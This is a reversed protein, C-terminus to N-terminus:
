LNQAEVKHELRREVSQLLLQSYQELLAMTKEEGEGLVSPGTAPTLGPLAELESHAMFLADMLVREMGQQELGVTGICSSVMTYLQIVKKVSNYLEAAAQRCTELTMLPEQDSQSKYTVGCTQLVDVLPHQPTHSLTKFGSSNKIPVSQSIPIPLECKTPQVQGKTHSIDGYLVGTKLFTNTSAAFDTSPTPTSRSPYESLPSSLRTSVHSKTTKATPNSPCKGHSLGSEFPNSPGPLPASLSLFSDGARSPSTSSSGPCSSTQSDSLNLHLGEKLSVSRNVKAKSSTTPSMYSRVKLRRIANPSEWLQPSPPNTLFTHKSISDNTDTLLETTFPRSSQKLLSKTISRRSNASISLESMSQAISKDVPIVARSMTPSVVNKVRCTKRRKPASHLQESICFDSRQELKTKQDSDKQMPHVTSVPPKFIACKESKKDSKCLFKSTRRATSGQALLSASISSQSKAENGSNNADSLTELQKEFFSKPEPSEPKLFPRGRVTEGDEDDTSLPEPDDLGKHTQEPSSGGSAYGMSSGRDPSHSGQCQIKEEQEQYMGPLSDTSPCLESSLVEGEPESSMAPRSWSSDACTQRKKSGKTDKLLRATSSCAQNSLQSSSVRLPAKPKSFSDFQQLELMSKVMLEFSGMRCNWRKRRRPVEPLAAVSISSGQDEELLSQPMEHDDPIQVDKIKEVDEGEESESTCTPLSLTSQLELSDTSVRRFNGLSALSRWSDTFAPSSLRRAFQDRREKIKVTLEPALRWIFICGDGSASILHRCNQTFKISTIIESHGFVAALCDGTQLDFLSLNKESCSTAVYLGSPDIQVRLLSGDEAQSGKFSKKQKGSSINFVRISRDQCGVVACKCTPDVDLDHLTSKRVIHHTRKFKVGKLTRHAARIYVSKDAGCSVMRVKGESAAFRVATISSSHDDLTQLLTYDDDVDLVHILRDRGATALLNMGTEPKSYELCLIESDHMKIQLVEEMTDLEYIRLTGNRDGSALHKGDPSVCITRIGTQSETPQEETKELCSTGTGEANLQCAGNSATYIVEQLDYSLRNRNAPNDYPETRWMRITSDASCSFFLESSALGTLPKESAGPCIQLDWVCASHYLGSYVKGVRQLDQVDWVYLSHDSYVCSLWLNVPDYTVAVSDPYRVDPNNSFLHSARSSPHHPRPLTCIFHLDSPTFVRVTGEACACFILDETVCLARATGTQLDVWKDLMRKENFECLLGSSTICFTSKSKEGHGCVVDCFNNNQLDGLLGSRGLLPVPATLKNSNCPELYWYKVHRNGATVFYSSDESFSVATVKSSVKNAAVLMNKKWAWVNVSMDHQYGISVIYKSNPSFAVCGVGYKHQQLEAVQSGDAVDWVRVAPLHGHEGTVLYKGDSSFALATITKRSTNIIHQQSNKTPNLLVIVCGAPYAVTGSNSDCALGSNGWTTIGLVKELTLVKEKVVPVSIQEDKELESLTDNKVDDENVASSPTLSEKNSPKSVLTKEVHNSEKAAHCKNQSQQESNDGKLLETTNSVETSNSQSTKTETNLKVTDTKKFSQLVIKPLSRKETNFSPRNLTHDSPSDPSRHLDSSKSVAATNTIFPQRLAKKSRVRMDNPTKWRGLRPPNGEGDLQRPNAPPNSVSTQLTNQSDVRKQQDCQEKCGVKGDAEPMKSLEVLKSLYVSQTQQLAEKRKELYQSRHKLAWITLRAQNLIDHNFLKVQEEVNLAKRLAAFSHRMEDRRVREKETHSLRKELEDTPQYGSKSLSTLDKQKLEAAGETKHQHRRQFKLMNILRKGDNNEFSEVDVDENSTNGSDDTPESASTFDNSSIEDESSNLTSDASLNDENRDFEISPNEDESLNMVDVVIEDAGRDQNVIQSTETCKDSRKDLSDPFEPSLKRMNDPLPSLNNLGTKQALSATSLLHATPISNVVTQDDLLFRSAGNDNNASNLRQESISINELFTNEGTQNNYYGKKSIDSASNEILLGQDKIDPKNGAVDIETLKDYPETKSFISSNEEQIMVQKNIDSCGFSIQSLKNSDQKSINEVNINYTNIFPDFGEDQNINLMSSSKTCMDEDSPLDNTQIHPCKSTEKKNCTPHGQHFCKDHSNFDVTTTTKLEIADKTAPNEDAVNLNEEEDASDTWLIREAGKPPWDNMDKSEPESVDSKHVMVAGEPIWDNRNPTVTDVAVSHEVPEDKIVVKFPVSNESQNLGETSEQSSDCNSTEVPSTIIEAVQCNQERSPLCSQVFPKVASEEVQSIEASHSAASIVNAPVVPVATNLLKILTFGGPLVVTSSDGLEPRKVDPESGVSKKEATPPCIRFSFTGTKGALSSQLFKIASMGSAINIGSTGSLSHMKPAIDTFPKPLMKPLPTSTLPLQLSRTNNPLETNYVTQTTSGENVSSPPQHHSSIPKLQIMQGNYQCVFTSGPMGTVPQLIVQQGPPLTSGTVSEALPAAASNSPTVPVIVFRTGDPVVPTTGPPPGMTNSSATNPELVSALPPGTLPLNSLNAVNGTSSKPKPGGKSLCRKSTNGVIKTQDRLRPVLRGTVYAAIRNVPHLAGLKGLQLKAKSYSKGNVKILGHSPTGPKRIDAKLYGPSAGNLFFLQRLLRKALPKRQQNEMSMSSKSGPNTDVTGKQAQAECPKLLKSEVGKLSKKTSKKVPAQLDNTMEKEDARSICVKYTVTSSRGAGKITTSILQIKYMALCFPHSLLDSNMRRFLTSLVLNRHPEWNCESLIELLKTPLCENPKMALETPNTETIKQSFPLGGAEGIGNFHEPEKMDKKTPFMHIQPPPNSNYERVRACTMMSEFYLYVPDKDEDPVKKSSYKRGIRLTSVSKSADSPVPVFIPEPDHEGTKRKWLSNINLAPPPRPEREPDAIPFALVSRKRGRQVTPTEEPPRLLLVKHKFCSCEFMCEVRRCHTPGRIERELSYCVCGLHCFDESCENENETQMHFKPKKNKKTFNILATLAFKARAATIHTRNQGHSIAEKEMHHLLKKNRANAPIMVSSIHSTTEASSNLGLPSKDLKKKRGPKSVFRVSRNAPLTSGAQRHAQFPQASSRPTEDMPKSYAKNSSGSRTKLLSDLTVVYSSSKSPLQYSVPSSSRTSFVAVRDSIQQAENELYADLMDSCFASNNKLGSKKGILVTRQCTKQFLQECLLDKSEPASQVASTSFKERWGKIKTLDNTKGTRSVFSGAADEVKHNDSQEYTLSPPPLSIKSKKINKANFSLAEKAVFSVFLMGEVDELDPHLPGKQPVDAPAPKRYKANSWCKAKAKRGRRYLRRRILHGPKREQVQGANLFPPRPPFVTASKIEGLTQSSQASMSSETPSNSDTCGKESIVFDLCSKSHETSSIPPVPEVTAPMSEELSVSESPDFELAAMHEGLVPEAPCKNLVAKTSGGNEIYDTNPNRLIANRMKTFIGEEAKPSHTVPHIVEARNNKICTSAKSKIAGERRKESIKQALSLLPSQFLTRVSSCPQLKDQLLRISQNDERFAMAFPNCDIKLQTIQPNQYSTVAYFETQPFSFIKVNPSDLVITRGSDPDFPVIHLRPLYRRMPRLIVCGEQDTTDNTLKVKYFSVPSDMWQQGVAPSEPHVCIQGLIHSEDVAVPKWSKGDWRYTFDDFPSIDMVLFYKKKQDLGSLRFRCCPFMRRGQKALIMETGLSHFRNWASENELTVTIDSSTHSKQTSSQTVSRPSFTVKQNTPSSAPPFTPVLCKGETVRENDLMVETGDGEM